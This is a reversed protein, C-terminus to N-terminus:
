ARRRKKSENEMQFRIYYTAGELEAQIERLLALAEDFAKEHEVIDNIRAIASRCAKRPNVLAM